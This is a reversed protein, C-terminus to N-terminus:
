ERDAILEIMAPMPEAQRLVATGRDITGLTTNQEQTFKFANGM